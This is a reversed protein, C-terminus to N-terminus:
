QAKFVVRGTEDIRYVCNAVPAGVPNITPDIADLTYALGIAPNTPSPIINLVFSIGSTGSPTFAPIPNTIGTPPGYHPQTTVYTWTLAGPPGYSGNDAKFTELQMAIVRCNASADGIVRARQRQGLYSPIAIASIIGIIALVVLIEILTFGNKLKRAFAQRGIDM